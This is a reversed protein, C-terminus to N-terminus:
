HLFMKKQGTHGAYTFRRNYSLREARRRAVRAAKYRLAHRVAVSAYLAKVEIGGRRCNPM